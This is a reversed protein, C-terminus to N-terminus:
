PRRDAAETRVHLVAGLLVRRELLLVVRVGDRELARQLDDAFLLLDLGVADDELEAVGADLHQVAAVPRVDGVALLVGLDRLVAFRLRQRELLALCQEGGGRLAARLRQPRLVAALVPSSSSPPRPRCPQPASSSPRPSSSPRVSSSPRPLSSPPAWALVDAQAARHPVPSSGGACRRGGDDDLVQAAQVVADRDCQFGHVAAAVSGARSAPVPGFAAAALRAHQAFAATNSCAPILKECTAPPM